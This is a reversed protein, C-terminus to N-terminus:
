GNGGQAARARLLAFFNLPNRDSNRRVRHVCEDICAIVWKHLRKKALEM